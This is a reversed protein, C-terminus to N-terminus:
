EGKFGGVINLHPVSQVRSEPRGDDCIDVIGDLATGVSRENVMAEDKCDYQLLYSVGRLGIRSARDSETSRLGLTAHM